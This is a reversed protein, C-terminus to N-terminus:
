ETNTLVVQEDYRMRRVLITEDPNDKPDRLNILLTGRHSYFRLYIGYPSRVGIAIEEVVLESLQFQLKDEKPLKLEAFM